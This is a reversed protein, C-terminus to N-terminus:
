ETGRGVGKDSRPLNPSSDDDFKFTTGATRKSYSL